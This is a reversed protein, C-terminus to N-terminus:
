QPKYPKFGDCPRTEVSGRCDDSLETVTLPGTALLM